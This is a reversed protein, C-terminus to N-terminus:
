RGRVTWGFGIRSVLKEAIAPFVMGGVAGGASAFGSAVGLKSTFWTALVQIGAGFILGMGVGTAIGQVLMFQWYKKCWSTGLVSAFLIVSGGHFCHRFRGKSVQASCIIAM